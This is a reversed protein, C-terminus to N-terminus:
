LIISKGCLPTNDWIDSYISKPWGLLMAGPGAPTNLTLILYFKSKLKSVKRHHKRHITVGETKPKLLRLTCLVFCSFCKYLLFPKLKVQTLTLRSGSLGQGASPWHDIEFCCSKLGIYPWTISRWHIGQKSLQWKIMVHIDLILSTCPKGLSCTETLGSNPTHGGHQAVGDVGDGSDGDDQTCPWSCYQYGYSFGNMPKRKKGMHHTYPEPEPRRITVALACCCPGMVWQPGYPNLIIIIIIFSVVRLRKGTKQLSSWVASALYSPILLTDESSM